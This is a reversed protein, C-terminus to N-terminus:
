SDLRYRIDLITYRAEGRATTVTVEDDLMRRLLARALPADVSIHEPADDIEDAGVIRHVVTRGTTDELEVWAGFFVREPDAPAQDVITLSPMRRQLYGLRRDIERLEKKRYQYEANESRDGEAAAAALHKVTDVRKTWLSQLEAELARYGDATIYPSSRPGPPRWRSMVVNWDSPASADISNRM